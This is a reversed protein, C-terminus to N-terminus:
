ELMDEFYFFWNGGKKLVEERKSVVLFVFFGNLGMYDVIIVMLWM